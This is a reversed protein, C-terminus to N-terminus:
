SAARTRAAMHERAEPVLLKELSTATQRQQPSLTRYVRAMAESRIGVLQGIESGETNALQQIQPVNGSRIAAELASRTNTLQQRIPQAQQRAQQFAADTAQRQSPNMALVNEINTVFEPTPGMARREVQPGIAFLGVASLAAIGAGAALKNPIFRM